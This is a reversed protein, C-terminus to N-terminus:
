ADRIHRFVCTHLLFLTDLFFTRSFLTLTLKHVAMNTNWCDQYKFKKQTNTKKLIRTMKNYRKQGAWCTDRRDLSVWRCCGPKSRNYLCVFILSNAAQTFYISCSKKIRQGCLTYLTSYQLEPRYLCGKNLCLACVTLHWWILLCTHMDTLPNRQRYTSLHRYGSYGIWPNLKLGHKTMSHTESIGQLLPSPLLMHWSNLVSM